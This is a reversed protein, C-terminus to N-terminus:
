YLMCKNSMFLTGESCACHTQADSLVVGELTCNGGNSCACFHLSPSFTASANHPDTAILTMTENSVAAPHYCLSYQNGGKNVITLETPSIEGLVNVIIDDDADQLTLNFINM